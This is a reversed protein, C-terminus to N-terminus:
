REWNFDIMRQVAQAAKARVEGPIVIEYKERHLAELINELTIKEMHPCRMSPVPIFEKRHDNLVINKEMAKETLLCFKQANSNQIFDIMAKTGGTFDVAKVVQPPCEPHALIIADPHNKRITKVHDPCFLKHVECRGNWGIVEGKEELHPLILKKGMIRAMNRGLYEDPLFIVKDSDISRLIAEANGSTCCIDTQAKTEAYTNIYTVVPVGPYREKLNRIDDATISEALSCGAEKVPLLVKKEPNLLKATQGMFSVGCVLIIDSDTKAAKKSLELSDGTIDSVSHFILPDIYNHVLIVANKEKKLRIIEQAIGAKERLVCDPTDEGLVRKFRDYILAATNM